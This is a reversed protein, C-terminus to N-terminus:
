QTLPSRIGSAKGACTLSPRSVDFPGQSSWRGISRWNAGRKRKRGVECRERGGRPAVLDPISRRHRRGSHLPVLDHALAPSLFTLWGLGAIAMGAGLIRPLFGSRFILYGILLCYFGFFDVHSRIAFTNGGHQRRLTGLRAFSLTV